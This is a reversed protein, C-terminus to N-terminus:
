RLELIEFWPLLARDTLHYPGRAPLVCSRDRSIQEYISPDVRYSGQGEDYPGKLVAGCSYESLLLVPLHTIPYYRPVYDFVQTYFVEWTASKSLIEGLCRLVEHIVADGMDQGHVELFRQIDLCFEASELIPRTRGTFSLLNWMWASVLRHTGDTDCGLENVIVPAFGKIRLNILEALVRETVAQETCQIRSIPLRGVEIWSGQYEGFSTINLPWSYEISSLCAELEFGFALWDCWERRTNFRVEEIVGAAAKLTEPAWVCPRTHSSWASRILSLLERAQPKDQFIMREAEQRLWVMLDHREKESASREDVAPFIIKLQPHPLPKSWWWQQSSVPKIEYSPREAGTMTGIKPLAGSLLLMHEFREVALSGGYRTSAGGGLGPLTHGPFRSVYPKRIGSIAAALRVGYHEQWLEKLMGNGLLMSPFTPIGAYFQQGASSIVRLDKQVEYAKIDPDNFGFQSKFQM